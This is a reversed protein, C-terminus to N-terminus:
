TGGRQSYRLVAQQSMGTAVRMRAIMRNLHLVLPQILSWLEDDMRERAIAEHRAFGLCFTLSL